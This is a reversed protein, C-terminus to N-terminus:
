LRRGEDRSEQESQKTVVLAITLTVTYLLFYTRIGNREGM